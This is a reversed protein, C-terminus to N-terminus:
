LLLAFSAVIDFISVHIMLLPLELVRHPLAHDFCGCFYQRTLPHTLLRGLFVPGGHNILWSWLGYLHIDVGVGSNSLPLLVLVKVLGKLGQTRLVPNAYVFLWYAQLVHPVSAVEVAQDLGVEVQWGERM